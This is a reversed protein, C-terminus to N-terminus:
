RDRTQWLFACRSGVMDKGQFNMLLYAGTAASDRRVAYVLALNNTGSSSDCVFYGGVHCCIRTNVLNDFSLGDIVKNEEPWRVFADGGGSPLEFYVVQTHNHASHDMMRKLREPLVIEKPMLTELPSRHRQSSLMGEIRSEQVKLLAEAADLRRKMLLDEDRTLLVPPPPPTTLSWRWNFYLIAVMILAITAIIFALWAIVTTCTWQRQSYEIGGPYKNKGRPTTNGGGEEKDLTGILM